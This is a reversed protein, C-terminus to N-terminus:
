QRDYQLLTDYSGSWRLLRKVRERVSFLLALASHKSRARLYM